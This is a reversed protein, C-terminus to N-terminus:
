AFIAQVGDLWIEMEQQEQEEKELQLDNEINELWERFYEIQNEKFDSIYQYIAICSKTSQKIDALLEGSAIYELNAGCDNIYKDEIDVTLIGATEVFDPICDYWGNKSLFNYITNVYNINYREFEVLGWLRFKSTRGIYERNNWDYGCEQFDEVMIDYSQECFDYFLDNYLESKAMMGSVLPFKEVINECEYFLDHLKLDMPRFAKENTDFYAKIAQLEKNAKEVLEQISKTMEM